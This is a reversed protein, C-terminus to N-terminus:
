WEGIGNVRGGRGDRERGMRRSGRNRTRAAVGRWAAEPLRAAAMTGLSARLMRMVWVSERSSARAPVVLVGVRSEARGPSARTKGTTMQDGSRSREPTVAEKEPGAVHNLGAEIVQREVWRVSQFPMAETTGTETGREVGRTRQNEVVMGSLGPLVERERLKGRASPEGAM